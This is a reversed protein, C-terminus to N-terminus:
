FNLSMSLYDGKYWGLSLFSGVALKLCFKERGLDETESITLRLLELGSIIVM